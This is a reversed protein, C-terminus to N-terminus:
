DNFYKFQFLDQKGPVKVEQVKKNLFDSFCAGIPSTPLSNKYKRVFELSVGKESLATEWEPTLGKGKRLSEMIKFALEPEIDNEMLYPMIETGSIFDFRNDWDNLINELAKNQQEKTLNFKSLREKLFMTKKHTM